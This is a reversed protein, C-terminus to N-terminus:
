TAGGIELQQADEQAVITAEIRRRRLLPAACASCRVIGHSEVIPASCSCTVRLGALWAAVATSM